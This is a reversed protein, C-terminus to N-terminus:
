MSSGGITSNSSLHFSRWFKFSYSYLDYLNPVVIKGKKNGGSWRDRTLIGAKTPIRVAWQLYSTGSASASRLPPEKAAMQFEVFLAEAAYGGEKLWDLFPFWPGWDDANDLMVQLFSSVESQPAKLEM